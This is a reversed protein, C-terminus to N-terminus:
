IVSEKDKHKKIIQGVRQFTVNHKFAVERMTAGNVYDYIIELDRDSMETRLKRGRKQPIKPEKPQKGKYGSNRSPLIQMFDIGDISLVKGSREIDARVLNYPHTNKSLFVAGSMVIEKGEYVWYSVQFEDTIYRCKLM